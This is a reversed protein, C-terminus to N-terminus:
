VSGPFLKKHPILDKGVLVKIRINPRDFTKMMEVDQNGPIQHAVDCAAESYGKLYYVSTKLYRFNDANTLRIVKIGNQKLYNGVRKAMHRVGNGNSVEIRIEKLSNLQEIETQSDHIIVEDGVAKVTTLQVLLLSKDNSEREINQKGSLVGDRNVFPDVVVRHWRNGGESEWDRVSAQCGLERLSQVVFTANKLSYTPAVQIDYFVRSDEVPVRPSVFPNPKLIGEDAITLEEGETKMTILPESTVLRGKDAMETDSRSIRSLAEAAALGNQARTFSPNSTLARVYNSKAEEYLGKRYYLQAINFYAKDEDGAIKFEAMALDFQDKMAYALGLNNHVRSDQGNLAIAKKFATVAEDHNGQLLYSFGLNNEVFSLNPNLDLAKQYSEMARPFDGMLDYSVGMGNYAKINYPDISIIKKFEEIAEKHRGREQYYGALLYHSDPNGRPSRMHSAFQALDKETFRGISTRGPDWFKIRNVMNGLSSCNTFFFLFSGLLLVLSPMKKMDYKRAM